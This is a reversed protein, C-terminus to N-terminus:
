LIGDAYRCVPRTGITRHTHPQHRPGTDTYRGASQIDLTFKINFWVMITRTATRVDIDDYARCYKDGSVREVLGNHGPKVVVCACIPRNAALFAFVTTHRGRMKVSFKVNNM